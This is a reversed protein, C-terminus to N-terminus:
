CFGATVGGVKIDNVLDHYDLIGSKVGDGVMNLPLSALINHGTKAAACGGAYIHDPFTPHDDVEM